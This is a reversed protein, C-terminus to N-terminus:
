HGFQFIALNVMFISSVYVLSWTVIRARDNKAIASKIKLASRFDNQFCSLVLVTAFSFIAAPGALVCVIEAMESRLGLGSSIAEAWPFFTNTWIATASILVGVVLLRYWRACSNLYLSRNGRLRMDFLCPLFSAIACVILVCGLAELSSALAGDYQAHVRRAGLIVTGAMGSLLLDKRRASGKKQWFALNIEYLEIFFAEIWNRMARPQVLNLMAM